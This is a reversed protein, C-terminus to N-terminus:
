YFIGYGLATKAGIGFESLAEKLYAETAKLLDSEKSAIYFCFKTQEITLFKIPRPSQYDTPAEKGSYYNPYHPNMIDIKLKIDDKPYADFFIVKGSNGQNGFIEQFLLIKDKGNKLFDYLKPDPPIQDSKFKKKFDEFSLKDDPGYGDRNDMNANELIKAFYLIQGYDSLHLNNFEKLVFWHSTIGKIASGPIYPIGFIHHLTMSTEQPHAAGLGIVMRHKLTLIFNDVSFGAKKLKDSVLRQREMITDRFLKDTSNLLQIDDIVLKLYSDKEENRTKPFLKSFILNPNVLFPPKNYDTTKNHGNKYTPSEKRKILKRLIDSTDKPNCFDCERLNMM